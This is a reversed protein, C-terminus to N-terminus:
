AQLVAEGAVVDYTEGSITIETPAYPGAYYVFVSRGDFPGGSVTLILETM